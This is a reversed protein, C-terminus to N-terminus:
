ISVYCLEKGLKHLANVIKEATEKRPKSRGCAYHSLQKQNIGTIHELAYRTFIKEYCCLLSEINFKYELEYEKNFVDPYNEGDEKACSVYFDISDKVQSRLDEFSGTVAVIWAELLECSASYGKPTKAVAIVVKNM